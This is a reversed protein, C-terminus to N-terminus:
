RASARLLSRVRQSFASWGNLGGNVKIRVVRWQGRQANVSIGRLKFYEALVRAAVKPRLALWPRDELPVGLRRGYARYNKRGTLQIYGRGHYRAGDGPRFNGLDARGEYMQTFYAPSGYERIPRFESATEVAVTAVAAIRSGQDALGVSRLAREIVPWHDTVVETSVGVADAIERPRLWSGSRRLSQNLSTWTPQDVVGTVALGGGRSVRSGRRDHTAQWQQVAYATIPGFYGDDEIGLRRQIDAVLATHGDRHGVQLPLTGRVRWGHVPGAVRTLARSVADSHREADSAEATPEPRSWESDPQAHTTASATARATPLSSAPAEPGRDAGVPRSGETDTGSVQATTIVGAAVAAATLVV